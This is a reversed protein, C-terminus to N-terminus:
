PTDIPVYTIDALSSGGTLEGAFPCRLPREGHGGVAGIGHLSEETEVPRRGLKVVLDAVYKVARFVFFPHLVDPPIVHHPKNVEQIFHTAIGQKEAEWELQWLGEINKGRVTGTESSAQSFESM